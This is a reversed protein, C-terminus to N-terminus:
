HRDAASANDSYNKFGTEPVVQHTKVQPVAGPSTANVALTGDGGDMSSINGFRDTGYDTINIPNNMASFDTEDPPLVARSILRGRSQNPLLSTLPTQGAFGIHGGMLKFVLYAVYTTGPSLMRTQIKARIELWWVLELAALEGEAFRSNADTEWRWYAPTDGWTIALDRAEVMISIKGRGKQRPRASNAAPM